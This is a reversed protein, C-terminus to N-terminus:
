TEPPYALLIALDNVNTGSAGTIWLDGAFRGITITDALIMAYRVPTMLLGKAVMALRQGKGVVFLVSLSVIVEALLTVALPEWMRLLIMILLATPFGIKEMAGLFMAWGVPRGYQLTHKEGFPQRYQEAIKRLHLSKLLQELDDKM